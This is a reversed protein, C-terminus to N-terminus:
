SKSKTVTVRATGQSAAHTTSGLYKVVLTYTGADLAKSAVVVKASGGSLTAEGLKTAGNYLEVKGTAASPSVTITVSGGKAWQWTTAAGSVTTTVKVVKVIVTSQRATYNGDGLYKM